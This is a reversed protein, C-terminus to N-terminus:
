SMCSINQLRKLYESNVFKWQLLLNLVLEGKKKGPPYYKRSLRNEEKAM